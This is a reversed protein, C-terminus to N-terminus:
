GPHNGPITRCSVDGVLAAVNREVLALCPLFRKEEIRMLYQIAVSSFQEPEAGRLGTCPEVASSGLEIEGPLNLVERQTPETPFDNAHNLLM